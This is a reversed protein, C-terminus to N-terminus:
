SLFGHKPLSQHSFPTFRELGGTVPQSIVKYLTMSQMVPDCSVVLLRGPSDCSDTYLMRVICSQSRSSVGRGCTFSTAHKSIQNDFM